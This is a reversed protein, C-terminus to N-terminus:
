AEFQRPNALLMGVVFVALFPWYYAHNAALQYVVLGSIAVSKLLMWCIMATPFGGGGIDRRKVVAAIAVMAVSFTGVIAFQSLPLHGEPGGGAPDMLTFLVVEGATALGLGSWLVWFLVESGRSEYERESM